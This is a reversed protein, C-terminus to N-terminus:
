CRWRERVVRLSSTSSSEEKEKAKAKAKTKGRSVEKKRKRQKREGGNGGRGEERKAKGGGRKAGRNSLSKERRRHLLPLRHIASHTLTTPLSSFPLSLFLSLPLLSSAPRLSLSSSFLPVSEYNKTDHPCCTYNSLAHALAFSCRVGGNPSSKNREREKVKKEKTTGSRRRRRRWRKISPLARGETEERNKGNRGRENEKRVRGRRRKKEKREKVERERQKRTNTFLSLGKSWVDKNEREKRKVNYSCKSVSLPECMGVEVYVPVCVM